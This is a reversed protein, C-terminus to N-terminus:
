WITGPTKQGIKKFHAIVLLSEQSSLTEILDWLGSGDSRCKKILRTWRASDSSHARSSEELSVDTLREELFPQFDTSPAPTEPIPEHRRSLSEGSSPVDFWEIVSADKSSEAIEPPRMSDTHSEEFSPIPHDRDPVDLFPQWSEQEQKETSWEPSPRSVDERRAADQDVWGDSPKARNSASQALVSEDVLEVSVIEPIIEWEVLFLTKGARIKDGDQLAASTVMENNVWTKNRSELDRLEARDGHNFVQFHKSSMFDDAKFAVDSSNPERGFSRSQGEQVVFSSGAGPGTQATLILNRQSKM